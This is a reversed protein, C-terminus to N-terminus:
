LTKVEGITMGGRTSCVVIDFYKLCYYPKCDHIIQQAGTMSFGVGVCVPAGRSYYNDYVNVYYRKINPPQDAGSVNLPGGVAESVAGSHNTPKLEEAVNM